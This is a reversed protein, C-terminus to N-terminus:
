LALMGGDVTVVTGNIYSGLDSAIFAVPWGIDEPTGARGSPITALLTEEDSRPANAPRTEKAAVGADVYGIAIGNVRVNSNGWHVALTQTMAHFAAKTATYSVDGPGFARYASVASLFFICGSGQEVMVRGAARCMLYAGRLGVDISRQWAELSMALPGDFNPPVTACFVLIDVTGCAAVVNDVLEQ